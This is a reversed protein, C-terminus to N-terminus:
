RRESPLSFVLPTASAAARAELVRYLPELHELDEVLFLAEERPDGQTEENWAAFQMRLLRMLALEQVRDM